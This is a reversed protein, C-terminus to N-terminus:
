AIVGYIPRWAYINVYNGSLVGTTWDISTTNMGYAANADLRFAQSTLGAVKICKETVYATPTESYPAFLLEFGIAGDDIADLLGPIEYGSTVSANLVIWDPNAKRILAGVDSIDGSGAPTAKIAKFKNSYSYWFNTVRSDNVYVLDGRRVEAECAFVNNYGASVPIVAIQGPQINVGNRIIHFESYGAGNNLVSFRVGVVGDYPIVFANALSGQKAQPLGPFKTSTLLDITETWGSSHSTYVPLTNSGLYAYLAPYKSEDFTSGNCLLYGDPLQINDALEVVSGLPMGYGVGVLAERKKTGNDDIVRYLM